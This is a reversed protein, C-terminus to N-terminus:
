GHNIHSMHHNIHCLHHQSPKYNCNKTMGGFAVNQVNDADIGGHVSHKLDVYSNYNNKMVHSNYYDATNVQYTHVPGHKSNSYDESYSYTHRQSHNNSYSYNYEYTTSTTTTSTTCSPTYRYNYNYNYKLIDDDCCEKKGSDESYVHNHTYDICDKDCTYESASTSSTKMCGKTSMGTYSDISTKKLCYDDSSNHTHTHTEEEHHHHGHCSGHIHNHNHNNINSTSTSTSTSTALSKAFHVSYNHEEVERHSKFRICCAGCYHRGPLQYHTTFYHAYLSDVSLFRDKCKGGDATRKICPCDFYGFENRKAGEVVAIPDTRRYSKLRGGGRYEEMSSTSSSSRVMAGLQASGSFSVM